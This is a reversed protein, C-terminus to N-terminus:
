QKKILTTRELETDLTFIYTGAAVGSYTANGGGLFPAVGFSDLRWFPNWNNGTITMAIGKGDLKIERSLRYPNSPDASLSLLTSNPDWGGNEMGNGCITIPTTSLNIPAQTPVYPTVSYTLDIPNVAIKYYGKTPLIIAHTTISNGLSGGSSLGFCHPEFSTEQGLFYIGKNDSDAYYKFTFVNGAKSHFRMPVGFADSSLNSNIPLDVLYMSTLGDAVTFNLKTTAQNQKLFNDKATILIDYSKLDAPISFTKSYEYLKADGVTVVDSIGLAACSVTLNDIGTIDEAKFSVTVKTDNTKFVVSGEAPKLNTLKPAEFDGDLRLNIKKTAVNGSVDTVLLEVEFKDTTLKGEPVLFKYNLDYEKILPDTAFEIVKDLQLEPIRIQVSKLGLDDNLSAKIEFKRDPGGYIENTEVGVSPDGSAPFTPENNECGIFASFLVLLFLLKM